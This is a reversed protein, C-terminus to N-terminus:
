FVIQLNVFWVIIPIKEYLHFSAFGIHIRMKLINEFIKFKKMENEGNNLKGLKTITIKLVM